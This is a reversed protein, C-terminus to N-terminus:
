KPKDSEEAAKSGDATAEAIKQKAQEAARETQAAAEKARDLKDHLDRAVQDGMNDVKPAPAKEAGGKGCAAVGAALALALVANLVSSVKM